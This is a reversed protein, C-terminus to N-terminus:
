SEPSGLVDPDPVSIVSMIIQLKLVKTTTATRKQFITSPLIEFAYSVIVTICTHGATHRVHATGGRGATGSGPGPGGDLLNVLRQDVGAVDM